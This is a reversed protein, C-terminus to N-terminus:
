CGCERGHPRHGPVEPREAEARAEAAGQEPSSQGANAASVTGLSLLDCREIVAFVPLGSALAAPLADTLCSMVADPVTPDMGADLMRPVLSDGM